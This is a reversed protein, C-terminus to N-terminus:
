RRSRKNPDLLKVAQISRGGGRLDGKGDIPRAWGGADVYYTRRQSNLLFPKHRKLRRWARKNDSRFYPFRKRLAVLDYTMAAEQNGYLGNAPTPAPITATTTAPTPTALTLFLKDHKLDEWHKFSRTMLADDLTEGTIYHVGVRDRVAKWRFYHCWWLLLDRGSDTLRTM